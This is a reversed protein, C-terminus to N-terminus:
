EGKQFRLIEYRTKHTAYLKGLDFSANLMAEIEDYANSPLSYHENFRDVLGRLGDKMNQYESLRSDKKVRM